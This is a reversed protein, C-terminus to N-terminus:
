LINLIEDCMSQAVKDSEAEAIIRVIPETNSARILVWRDPWYLRLGDLQSHGADPYKNGIEDTLARLREPDVQAKTKVIAYRPLNAVLESVTQNSKALQSSKALAELTQAIGVFSDRVLGVRPDIPGGNGEGGYVADREIMAGTVNAEGVASRHIECNFEAAIDESMRSTACNIVVPGATQQLRNRLTIALTYEEGIYNGLEDIIALRDADPDQCFVVDAGFQQAQAAVSQLNEATPEPPHEFHGNPQDGMLEFETGLETLLRRGLISGAGHNSDLVVKFKKQRILDVDVTDLVLKLHESITDEINEISGINAHGVWHSDNKRYNAIVQNGEDASIV